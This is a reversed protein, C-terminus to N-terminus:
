DVFIFWSTWGLTSRMGKIRRKLDVVKMVHDSRINQSKDRM